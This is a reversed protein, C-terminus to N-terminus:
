LVTCFLYNERAAERTNDETSLVVKSLQTARQM